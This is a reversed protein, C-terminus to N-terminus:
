NIKFTIVREEEQENDLSIVVDQGSVKWSFPCSNGLLNVEKAKAAISKLIIEKDNTINCFAYIADDRKTFRISDYGFTEFPTSKYIGESNIDMWDGMENLFQYEKSDLTGDPKMPMGLLFNGNKSVVDVMNWIVAVTTPFNARMNYHWDGFPRDKQWPYKQIEEEGGGYGGKERDIVMGKKYKEPISEDLSHVKLNLVGNEKGHWERNKNYFYKIIDIGAEKFPTREAISKTSAPIGEYTDDGHYTFQRWVQEVIYSDFYIMDPQYTDILDVCRNYWFQMWELSPISDNERQYPSYLKAPDYGEWWKGKGDELTLRGDYPIGKYLGATDSKFADTFWGWTNINHVSVGFKMDYKDAAKKWEGIVDRKPGINVANWKQYKSNWTDFNDHHNALAMFYRAGARHYLQMLSDPNWKDLTWLPLLDKYGLESPHGFNKVHDKYDYSGEMYMKKAYWDGQMPVDQPSSHAWIGFKADTYWEPVKYKSLSEWNSEYKDAVFKEKSNSKCAAIALVVMGYIAIRKIM